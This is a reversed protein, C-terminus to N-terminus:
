PCRLTASTPWAGMALRHILAALLKAAAMYGMAFLYLRAGVRWRGIRALLRSVGVHGEGYATLALAVFAPAFVGLLFVPGGIGFFGAD